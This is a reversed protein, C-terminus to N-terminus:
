FAAFIKWATQPSELTMWGLSSTRVGRCRRGDWVLDWRERCISTLTYLFSFGGVSSTPIYIPAAVKSFM